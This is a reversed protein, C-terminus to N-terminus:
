VIIVCRVLTPVIYKFWSRNRAMSGDCKKKKARRNWPSLLAPQFRLGWPMSSEGRLGGIGRKSGQVVNALVYRRSFVSIEHPVCFDHHSDFVCRLARNKKLERRSATFRYLYRLNRRKERRSRKM